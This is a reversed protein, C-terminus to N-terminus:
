GIEEPSELHPLGGSPQTTAEDVAVPEDGPHALLDAFTTGYIDWITMFLAAIIPGIIFGVFGFVFIGGLTSVLILVDPMETDSGVLRPRLVNDVMSVVLVCWALLGIAATTKGALFLYGVAPVWVLAAGIGPVVSLVGMITAWFLAGGIGAAIFGGGALAGQIIGIVVTGKLTARSVSVFRDLMRASDADSLPTYRMIRDVLVGGDMLFFFMAYLLIFANLFFGVTGRATGSLQQFLFAGAAGALEGLKELIQKQYPRVQEVFPIYQSIRDLLGPEHMQVEIKAVWPSVQESVELAQATVVGILATLPGVVLIILIVITLASATAQRGRLWDRLRRYLPQALASFIGALLLPVVFGKIMVFFLASIAIVAVLVFGKRFRDSESQAM